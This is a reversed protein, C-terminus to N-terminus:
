LKLIFVFISNFDDNTLEDIRSAKSAGGREFPSIAIDDVCGGDPEAVENILTWDLAVGDEADRRHGLRHRRDRRQHQEVLPSERQVIRDLDACRLERVQAHQAIRVSRQVGGVLRPSRDRKTIQQRMSRPQGVALKM